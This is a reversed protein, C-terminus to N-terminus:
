QYRFFIDSLKKAPNPKALSFQKIKLIKGNYLFVIVTTGDPTFAINQIKESSLEPIAILPTLIIQLGNYHHNRITETRFIYWLRETSFFGKNETCGVALNKELNVNTLGFNNSGKATYLYANQSNFLISAHDDKQEQFVNNWHSNHPLYFGKTTEQKLNILDHKNYCEKLTSTSYSSNFHDHLFTYDGSITNLIIIARSSVGTRTVLAYRIQSTLGMTNETQNYSISDVFFSKTNRLTLNFYTEQEPDTNFFSFHPMYTDKITALHQLTYGRKWTAYLDSQTMCQLPSYLVTIIILYLTKSLM